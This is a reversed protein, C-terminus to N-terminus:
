TKTDDAITNMRLFVNLFLFCFISSDSYGLFLFQFYSILELCTKAIDQICFYVKTPVISLLSLFYISFSNKNIETYELAQRLM